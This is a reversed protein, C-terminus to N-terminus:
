NEGINPHAWDEEEPMWGLIEEGYTTKEFITKGIYKNGKWAQAGLMELTKVDYGLPYFGWPKTEVNNWFMYEKGKGSTWANKCALTCTQCAICKNTDFVWAAQKEPRSEPYKYDMKRNIQWNFVKETM